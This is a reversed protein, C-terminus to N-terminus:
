KFSVVVRGKCMKASVSQFVCSVSMQIVPIKKEVNVSDTPLLQCCLDRSLYGCNEQSKVSFLSNGQVISDSLRRTKHTVAVVVVVVVVVVMEVAVVMM